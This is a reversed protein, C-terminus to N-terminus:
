RSRSQPFSSPFSYDGCHPSPDRKLLSSSIGTSVSLGMICTHYTIGLLWVKPDKFAMIVGQITSVSEGEADSALGADLALRASSIRKEEESLWSTTLPYDPLIFVALISVVITIAGEVVFLWRWAGLGMDGDMRSLIGAAILGGFAQAALNGANLITVRLHMEKRTYWRSLFYLSGPFFSAEVCGLFFRCLIAGTANQVASTSASIVGWVIVCSCLYWSPRNVVHLILNSPLQMVVYGVLFISICTQYQVDSLNLDDELGKLRANAFNNRDIFNLVFLIIMVPFVRIDIKRVLSKEAKIDWSGAAITVRAQDGVFVDVKSEASKSESRWLKNDSAM